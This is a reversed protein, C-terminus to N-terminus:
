VCQPGLVSECLATFNPAMARYRQTESTAEHPAPPTVPPQQPPLQFRPPAPPSLTAGWGYRQVIPTAPAPKTGETFQVGRTPPPAPLASAQQAEMQLQQKFYKVVSTEVFTQLVDTLDQFVGAEAASRLAAPSVGPQGSFGPHSAIAKAIHLANQRRATEGAAIEADSAGAYLERMKLLQKVLLPLEATHFGLMGDKDKDFLEVMKAYVKNVAADVDLGQEHAKAQAMGDGRKRPLNKCHPADIPSGHGGRAHGQGQAVAETAHHM